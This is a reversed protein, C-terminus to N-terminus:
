RHSTSYAGEPRTTNKVYGLPQACLRKGSAVKQRAKPAPQIM